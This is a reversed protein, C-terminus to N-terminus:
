YWTRPISPVLSSFIFMKIYLSLDNKDILANVNNLKEGFLSMDNKEENSIDNENAM